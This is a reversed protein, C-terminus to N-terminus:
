TDDDVVVEHDVSIRVLDMKESGKDQCGQITDIGRSKILM